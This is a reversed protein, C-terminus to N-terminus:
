YAETIVLDVSATDALATIAGLYLNDKNFTYSEGATLKISNASTSTATGFHLYVFNTGDLNQVNLYRRGTNASVVTNLGSTAVTSTTQSWTNLLVTGYGGGLTTTQNAFTFWMGVAIGVILILTYLLKNEM